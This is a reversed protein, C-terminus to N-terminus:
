RAMVMILYCLLALTMLTGGFAAINLVFMTTMRRHLLTVANKSAKEELRQEINELQDKVENVSAMCDSFEKKMGDMNSILSNNLTLYNEETIEKAGEVMEGIQKKSRDVSDCIAVEMDELSESLNKYSSDVLNKMKEIDTEGTEELLDKQQIKKELARRLVEAEDRLKGIEDALLDQDLTENILM